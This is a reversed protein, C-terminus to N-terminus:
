SNAEKYLSLIRSIIVVLFALGFGIEIYYTFGTIITAPDYPSGMTTIIGISHRLSQTINEIPPYFNNGNFFALLGFIIVLEFYNIVALILSRVPSLVRPRIRVFINFWSQSIDTLRWIIFILAVILSLKDISVLWVFFLLLLLWAMVYIEVLLHSEKWCKHLFKDVLHSIITLPSLSKLFTFICTLLPVIFGKSNCM